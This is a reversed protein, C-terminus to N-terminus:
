LGGESLRKNVSHTRQAGTQVLSVKSRIDYILFIIHFYYLLCSKHPLQHFYNLAMTQVSDSPSVLDTVHDLSLFFYTFTLPRGTKRVPALDLLASLAELPKQGPVSVLSM